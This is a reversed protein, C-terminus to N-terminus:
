FSVKTRAYSLAEIMKDIQEKTHDSMMTLRLRSQGKAVAPWRVCPIFIGRDLLIRSVEIAKREEGIYVPIIQTKSDLINFKEAILKVKAYKVNSLLRERREPENRVIDIATILGKTISPPIPASFIYPRATVRLYKVLNLSGTIFGGIGGFVKTFTGMTIVRPNNKIGFHEMTGRGTEGLIGTAHADDIMILADYKEALEVIKDIPAIDGDMSFVGDTVILKRKYGQARMLSKELSDMDKHRYVFKDAKALSCGDIISAHNLEDSFVAAKDRLFTKNKLINAINTEPPNLLAPIVGINAMYGTTFTIAGEAGKFKAIKGELEEQVSINGSVLRSGGSGMGYIKTAAVVAEKIKENAALSLYNNSCFMLVKKGDVIVETNTSPGTITRIDPYEITQEVYGLTKKIDDLIM